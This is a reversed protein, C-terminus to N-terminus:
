FTVEQTGENGMLVLLIAMIEKFHSIGGTLRIWLARTGRMLFCNRLGGDFLALRSKYFLEM